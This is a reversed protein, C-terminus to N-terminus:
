HKLGEFIGKIFLYGFGLVCLMHFPTLGYDGQDGLRTAVFIGFVAYVMLLFELVVAFSVGRHAYNVRSFPTKHGTKLAKANIKPTRVFPTVIGLHGQIVAVANNASLGIALTFFFIFDFVAAAWSRNCDSNIMKYSGTYAWLLLLTTVGFSQLLYFIYTWEPHRNKIWLLPISLLILVLVLFFLSSSFLHATGFIKEKLSLKKVKWLRRWLQKFNQAGGKNWRFQQSRAASVTQPLEAPTIIDPRYTMRWGKLQARYSLDLDETLTNGSWNGAELICSKRWIGATGNFNMFVGLGQRGMQELSFHLDLAFAQVRTLISHNRNSHGWRTQVIGIKSESFYPMTRLLWDSQPLFDADFIAIFEGKAEKLGEKLAGAKFGKRHTRHRHVILLGQSRLKAVLVQIISTTNDTSDDLVQIELRDKPYSLQAVQEILTHVVNQENYIPLQVTVMPLNDRLTYPSRRNSILEYRSGLFKYFLIVQTIAFLLLVSLCLTYLLIIILELIM